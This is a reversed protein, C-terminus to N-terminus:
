CSQGGCIGVGSIERAPTAAANDTMAGIWDLVRLYATYPTDHEGIQVDQLLGLQIQQRPSLEGHSVRAHTGGADGRGAAGGPLPYAAVETVLKTRHRYIKQSALEKAAILTACRPAARCDPRQGSVQGTLLDDHHAMYRDAVENVCRGVM